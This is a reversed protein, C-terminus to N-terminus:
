VELKNQCNGNKASHRTTAGLEWWPADTNLFLKTEWYDATEGVAAIQKRQSFLM